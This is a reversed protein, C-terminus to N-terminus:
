GLKTYLFFEPKKLAASLSSGHKGNSVQQKSIDSM